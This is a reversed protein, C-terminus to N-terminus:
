PKAVLGNPSKTLAKAAEGSTSGFAGATETSWRGERLWYKCALLVVMINYPLDFYTLSLFAGGVAYGVMSVQVMGALDRIWLSEPRALAKRRLQSAYWFSLAGMTLFLGLGIWGQEGLAQFYISHATLVLNTDQGYRAYIDPKEVVFGAGTIRDNAVKYALEWAVIRGMASADRQYSGITQMREEWSAPMFLLLGIAAALIAFAGVLKQKSHWWLVLGMASIALFAGRSQTALAAASSLLMAALLCLRVWPRVSVIRLYNMLPITMVIALGLENNGEIFSSAPGWVRSAGGSAIAFIGGKVGYFGISAVIVWIFYEIHKRERLAAICILTMLQIKLTVILDNLSQEPYFAFSTTVCTWMLFLVLAFVAPDAPLRVKDRNWLISIMTVIATTAAFPLEVAFGYALRHPNMTSFWTWLLAGSWTNKFAQVIAWAFVGVLAIDRM